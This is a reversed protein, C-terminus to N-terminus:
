LLYYEDTYILPCFSPPYFILLTFYKFMTKQLLFIESKAIFSKYTSRSGKIGYEPFVNVQFSSYTLLKLLYFFMDM